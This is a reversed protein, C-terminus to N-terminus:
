AEGDVEVLICAAVNHGIIREQDSVIVTIPGEFPDHTIVTVTAGLAFDRDLIHQLMETSEAVFRSVTASTGPSLNTLAVTNRAAITGDATPIPDGHPDTAPDDLKAAIAKIFRDSVAHELRDAEDHVEHLAYGLEKVLYLEILRHRRIINLARTEGEPTLLVGYYKRYDVLGADVMRRAMDTVSPASIGLSDALANTSVREMEQQLTYVAKLFDEVSRSRTKNNEPM